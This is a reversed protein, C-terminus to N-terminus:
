ARVRVLKAEDGTALYRGDPSFSVSRIYMDGVIDVDDGQLVCVKEGSIIDYIQTSKNCGTAVFKGDMSFDICCVISEHDLTHILDLDLMRPVQPNFIAFWDDGAKKHQPSLHKVDLDALFTVEGSPHRDTTDPVPLEHDEIKKRKLATPIRPTEKRHVKKVHQHLSGANAFGVDNYICRGQYCKLRRKHRQTKHDNLEAESSFGRICGKVPCVFATSGFQTKFAILKAETLNARPLGASTTARLLQEVVAQYNANALSFLTM